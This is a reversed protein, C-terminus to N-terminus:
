VFTGVSNGILNGDLEAGEALVTKGVIEELSTGEFTGELSGVFIGEANLIFGVKKDDSEGLMAGVIVLM